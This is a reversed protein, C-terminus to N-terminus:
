EPRVLPEAWEALANWFQVRTAAEAAALASVSEESLQEATVVRALTAVLKPVHEDQEFVVAKEYGEAWQEATARDFTVNVTHWANPSSFKDDTQSTQVYYRTPLAVV